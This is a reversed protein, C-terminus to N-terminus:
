DSGGALDQLQKTSIVIARGKDPQVGVVETARSQIWAAQPPDVFVVNSTGGPMAMSDLMSTMSTRSREKIMPGETVLIIAEYDQKSRTLRFLCESLDTQDSPATHAQLSNRIATAGSDGGGQARAVSVCAKKDNLAMVSVKTTAPLKSVHQAILESFAPYTERSLDLVYLVTKKRDTMRLLDLPLKGDSTM